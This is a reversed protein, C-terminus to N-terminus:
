RWRTPPPDRQQEAGEEDPRHRIEGARVRAVPPVADDIGLRLEGGGGAGDNDAKDEVGHQDAAQVEPQEAHRREGHLLDDLRRSRSVSRLARLRFM